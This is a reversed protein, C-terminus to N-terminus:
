SKWQGADRDNVVDPLVAHDIKNSMIGKDIEIDEGVTCGVQGVLVIPTFANEKDEEEEDNARPQNRVHLFHRPHTATPLFIVLFCRANLSIGIQTNTLFCYNQM